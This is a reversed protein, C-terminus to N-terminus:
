RTRIEKQKKTTYDSLLLWHSVREQDRLFERTQRPSTLHRKDRWERKCRRELEDVIEMDTDCFAVDERAVLLSSSSSSSTRQRRRVEAIRRLLGRYGALERDWKVPIAHRPDRWFPLSSRVPPSPLTPSGSLSSSSSHFDADIDTDDIQASSSSPSSSSSWFPDFPQDPVRVRALRSPHIAAPSPPFSRTPVLPLISQSSPWFRRSM